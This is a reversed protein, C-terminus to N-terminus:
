KQGALLYYIINSYKMKILYINNCVTSHFFPERVRVLVLWSDMRVVTTAERGNLGNAPLVQEISSSECSLMAYIDFLVKM